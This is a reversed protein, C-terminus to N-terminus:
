INEKIGMGKRLSSRYVDLRKRVSPIQLFYLMFMALSTFVSNVLVRRDGYLMKGKGVALNVKSVVNSHIGSLISCNETISLYVWTYFLFLVLNVVSYKSISLRM